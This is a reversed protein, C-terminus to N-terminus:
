SPLTYASITAFFPWLSLGAPKAIVDFRDDNLWAPGGALRYFRLGYAERIMVGLPLDTITLMGGPAIQFIANTRSNPSRSKATAVEFAPADAPAQGRSIGAALM